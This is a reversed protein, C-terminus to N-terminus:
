ARKAGVFIVIYVTFHNKRSLTTFYFDCQLKIAVLERGHSCVRRWYYLTIVYNVYQLTMKVDSFDIKEKTTAINGCLKREFNFNNFTVVTLEM